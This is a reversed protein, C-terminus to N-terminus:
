STIPRGPDSDRSGWTQLEDQPLQTPLLLASPLWAAARLFPVADCGTYGITAGEIIECAVRSPGVGAAAIAAPLGNFAASTRISESGVLILAPCLLLPLLPVFDYRNEPGYKELYGAASALFPLPQTVPLLTEGQGCAVLEGARVFEDRFKEGRPGALLREHAFRPPSIGVIARVASHQANAQSYIAKVAGMSHGVLVIRAFGHDCLWDSWATVDLPCDSVREFTAGGKVSGHRGPISCVGDHGRTNVRLVATGQELAQHAFTDLVSTAYFNSGTGHILLFADVPLAGPQVPRQLAGDLFLGDATEARVLEITASSGRMPITAETGSRRGCEGTEGM